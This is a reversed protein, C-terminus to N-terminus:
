GPSRLVQRAGVAATGIGKRGPPRRPRPRRLRPAAPLRAAVGAPHERAAQLAAAGDDSGPPQQLAWRVLAGTWAWEDDDWEELTSVHGDVVEFGAAVARDVLGALDPFEDPGAELAEQAAPPGCGSACPACRGTWAASPTVRWRRLARRRAPRHRRRGPPHRPGARGAARAVSGGRLRPRGRQRGPLAGAPRAATGRAARSAGAGDPHHVDRGGDARSRRLVAEHGRRGSGDSRVQTVGADRHGRHEEAVGDEVGVEHWPQRLHLVPELEGVDGVASRDGGHRHPRQQGAQERRQADAPEARGPDGREAEDGEAERQGAQRERVGPEAEHRDHEHDAPEVRDDVDRLVRVAEPHLARVAPRDDVAQVRQPADPGHRAAQQAGCGCPELDRQARVERRRRDHEAGARDDGM